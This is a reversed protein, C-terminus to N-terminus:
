RAMGAVASCLLAILFAYGCALLAQASGLLVTTAVQRRDVALHRGILPAMADGAPAAAVFAAIPRARRLLTQIATM